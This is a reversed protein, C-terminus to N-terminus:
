LNMKIYNHTSQEKETIIRKFKTNQIILKFNTCFTEAKLLVCNIVIEIEHLM